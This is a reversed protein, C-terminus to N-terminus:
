VCICKNMMRKYTQVIEIESYKNLALMNEVSQVAHTNTNCEQSIHALIIAKPKKDSCSLVKELFAACQENSLHGIKKIRRKLWAPRMSQDLMDTDHNSEILIVDSNLFKRYLSDQPYGMDTAITIKKKGTPSPYYLNFGFCGGRSDHPVQFARVTFDGVSFVKKQFIRLLNLEHAKLMIDYHKTLVASVDSHCYIPVKASVLKKLM